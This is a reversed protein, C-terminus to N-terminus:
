VSHREILALLRTPDVPKQMYGAAGMMVSQVAADYTGSFVLVPIDAITPDKLQARRFGFGDLRPMMLDLVILSPKFGTQLCELAEIGDKAAVVQYRNSELYACMAERITPRSVKFASALDRESPLREGAKYKGSTISEMITSAVQQYLKRTDSNISM